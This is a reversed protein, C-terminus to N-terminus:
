NIPEVVKWFGKEFQFIKNAACPKKNTRVDFIAASHIKNKFNVECIRFMENVSDNLTKLKKQKWENSWKSWTNADHFKIVLLCTAKAKQEAKQEETLPQRFELGKTKRGNM